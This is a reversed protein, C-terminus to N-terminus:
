AASRANANDNAIRIVEELPAGPSDVVAAGALQQKIIRVDEKVDRLDGDASSLFLELVDPESRGAEIDDALNKLHGSLGTWANAMQQAAQASQTAGSSLSSFTTELGSAFKVESKLTSERRLLQEKQNVLAAIAIGSGVAGAIGGVVLTGGLLALPTSTGATVFGSITGVAVLFVGGAIAVGSIAAGAVAGTIKGDIDHLESQLAALMGGDASTVAQLQLQFGSFAAADKSLLERLAHLDAAVAIAESEFLRSQNEVIRLNRIIKAIDKENELMRSLSTQLNFYRDVRTITDIAKPQILSLYRDGNAAATRLAGNMDDQLGKLKSEGAFDIQPQRCVTMAHSQLILAQGAQGKIAGGLDTVPKVNPDTPM